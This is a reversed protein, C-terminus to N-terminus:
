NAAKEHLRLAGNQASAAPNNKAEGTILIDDLHCQGGTVTGGTVSTNSTMLLRLQLSPRDHCEAPLVVNTLANFTGLGNGAALVGGSVDTWTNGDLSYQLKFDRPGTFTVPAHTSTMRCSFALWEYNATNVPILWAKTNAGADWDGAIARLGAGDAADFFGVAGAGGVTSLASVGVNAPTGTDATHNAFDAWSSWGCVPGVFNSRKSAYFSSGDNFETANNAFANFNQTYSSLQPGRAVAVATAANVRGYGYYQNFGNGDYTVGGIQDATSRLLARVQTQTMWPNVSLALAAVGTALPSASSTGGFGGVQRFSGYNGPDYGVSGTRDTTVIGLDGGGSPAVIDLRAGYQSYHARLDYDTSAGVCIVDPHNAPYAPPVTFSAPGSLTSGIPAQAGDIFFQFTDNTLESDVWVYFRIQGDGPMTKTYFLSTSQNHGIAGSRASVSDVIGVARDSGPRITWLQAGSSTFGPAGGTFEPSGYQPITFVGSSDYFGISDVYM